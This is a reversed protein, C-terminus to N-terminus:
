KVLEVNKLVPRVIKMLVMIGIDQLVYVIVITTKEIQDKVYHAILFILLQAPKVTILVFWYKAILVLEMTGLEVLVPAYLLTTLEIVKVLIVIALIVLAPKVSIKVLQVTKKPHLKIFDQKVVVALHLLLDTIVRVLQVTQPM